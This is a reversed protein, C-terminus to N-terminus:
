PNVGNNPIPFFRRHTEPWRAPDLETLAEYGKNTLRYGRKERHNVVFGDGDVSVCGDIFDLLGLSVLREGIKMSAHHPTFYDYVENCCDTTLYTNSLFKLEVTKLKM